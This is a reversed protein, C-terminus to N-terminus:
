RANKQVNKTWYRGVHPGAPFKAHISATSTRCPVSPTSVRPASGVPFVPCPHDRNLDSLSCQAHVTVTSTRCPVSPTSSTRCPASPTSPRPQPGAPFEPITTTSARCPVSPAPVRPAPGALFVPSPHDRNLDPRSCQAHIIVFPGARFVAISTRPQPGAAFVPM